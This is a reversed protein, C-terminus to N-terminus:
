SPRFREITPLSPARMQSQPNRRFGGPLSYEINIRSNRVYRGNMRTLAMEAARKDHFEIFRQTQKFPSSRIQRIEGDRGFMESLEENSVEAPLHFIVITGNNPPKRPNTVEEFPAFMKIIRRGGIVLQARRLEIASRIDFYHVTLVSKDFKALDYFEVDGYREFLKKLEEIPFDAPLNNVVIVRNEVEGTNEINAETQFMDPYVPEVSDMSTPLRTDDEIPQLRVEGLASQGVPPSVFTESFTTPPTELFATWSDSM